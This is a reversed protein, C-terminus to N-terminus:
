GDAEGKTNKKVRQKVPKLHKENLKCFQLDALVRKVFEFEDVTEFQLFTSLCPKMGYYLMILSQTPVPQGEIRWKSIDITQLFMAGPLLAPNRILEHM